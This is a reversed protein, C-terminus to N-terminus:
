LFRNNCDYMNIVSPNISKVMTQYARGRLVKQLLKTSEELETTDEVIYKKRNEMDKKHKITVENKIIIKPAMEKVLKHAM